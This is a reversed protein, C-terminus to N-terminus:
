SPMLTGNADAKVQVAEIVAWGLLGFYVPVALCFTVWLFLSIVMVGGNIVSLALQIIGREKYGAIINHIGVLGFLGPLIALLIYVSRTCKAQGSQLDPGSASAPAPRQTQPSRPPSEAVASQFVSGVLQWSESNVARVMGNMELLGVSMMRRCEEADYPGSEQGATNRYYYQESM